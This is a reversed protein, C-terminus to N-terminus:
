KSQRTASLAHLFACPKLGAKRRKNISSNGWKIERSVTETQNGDM